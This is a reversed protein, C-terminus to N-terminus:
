HKVRMLMIWAWKRLEKRDKPNEIKKMIWERNLAALHKAYYPNTRTADIVDYKDWWLLRSLITWFEARDLIKNPMFDVMRIWMVWLACSKEAYVKVMPSKWESEADWWHCKAPVVAPIEKKLVKETFKVVMEAMAWRTVYGDPDSENWTTEIIWMDHAWFYAFLVELDVDKRLVWSWSQNYDQASGHQDGWGSVDSSWGSRWRGSWGIWKNKTIERWIATVTIDDYPIRGPLEPSWWVFEYGERTPIIPVNVTDGYNGTIPEIETWWDTDFTITHVGYDWRSTIVIDNAPMKGDAPLNDWWLFTNWTWEPNDVPLVIDAWYKVWTNILVNDRDKVTLNYTNRTYRYQVIWGFTISVEVGTQLTFWTYIKWTLIIGTGFNGYMTETEVLDYWDWAVNEQLYEITYPVEFNIRQAYLTLEEQHETVINVYERDRYKVEWTPSISWWKFIAWDKTFNNALLSKWQDYVMDMRDMSWVWGNGDFYITYTNPETEAYLYVSHNPMIFTLSPYWLLGNDLWWYNQAFSFCPFLFAGVLVGFMLAVLSLFSKVRFM